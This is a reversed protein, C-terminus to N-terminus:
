FSVISGSFAGDDAGLQGSVPVLGAVVLLQAAPAVDVQQDVSFAVVGVLWGEGDTGEVWCVEASGWGCIVEGSSGGAAPRGSPFGSVDSLFCHRSVEDMAVREQGAALDLFDLTVESQVIGAAVGFVMQVGVAGVSVGDGCDTSHRGEELVSPYDDCGADESGPFQALLPRGALPVQYGSAMAVTGAALRSIMTSALTDFDFERSLRRDPCQATWSVGAGAPPPKVRHTSAVM